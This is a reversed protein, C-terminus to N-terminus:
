WDKFFFHESLNKTVLNNFQSHSQIEEDVFVIVESIKKDIIGSWATARASEKYEIFNYLLVVIVLAMVLSLMVIFVIFLFHVSSILM